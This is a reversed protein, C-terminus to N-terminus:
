TIRPPPPSLGGGGWLERLFVGVVRECEEEHSFAVGHAGGRVVALRGRVLRGLLLKAYWPPVFPDNSGVVLLVPCRIAGVKEAPRDRTARLWTGLMRTPTTKLYERAVAGVLALPERAIDRLYVAGQWLARCRGPAGTPSILVVGRARAPDRVALEIVAHAALSHGVWAPAELGLATAFALLWRATEEVSQGLWPGPTGGFGPLDPALIRAGAAAALPPLHQAWFSGSLGLGHVIVCPPGSGAEVFRARRGELELTGERCRM